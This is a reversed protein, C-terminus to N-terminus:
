RDMRTEMWMDSTQKSIQGGMQGDMRGVMWRKNVEGGVWRDMWEGTLEGMRKCVRGGVWGDTRRDQVRGRDEGGAERQM